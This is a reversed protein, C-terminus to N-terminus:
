PTPWGWKGEILLGPRSDIRNTGSPRWGRTSNRALSHSQVTSRPRYRLCDLSLLFHLTRDRKQSVRGHQHCCQVPGSM